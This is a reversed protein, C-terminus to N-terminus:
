FYYIFGAGIHPHSNYFSFGDSVRFTTMWPLEAHLAFHRNFFFEIGPGAGISPHWANSRGYGIFYRDRHLVNGLYGVLYVRISSHPLSAGTFSHNALTYLLGLANGLHGGNRDIWAGLSATFGFNNAFHQRYLFGWTYFVTGGAGIGHSQGNSSNPSPNTAPAQTSLTLLLAFFFFLAFNKM